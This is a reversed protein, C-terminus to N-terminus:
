ISNYLKLYHQIGNVTIPIYEGGAASTAGDYIFQNRFDIAGASSGTGHDIVLPIENVSRVYCGTGDNSNFFGGAGDGSNGVLATGYNSYAVISDDQSSVYICNGESQTIQLGTGNFKNILIGYGNESQTIKIGTTDLEYSSIILATTDHGGINISLIEAAEDINYLQIKNTTSNGQDTVQQLTPILVNSNTAVQVWDTGNDWQIGDDTRSFWLRGYFGPLPRNAESSEFLAPAGEQNLVNFNVNM